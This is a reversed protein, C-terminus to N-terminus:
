RKLKSTFLQAFADDPDGAGGSLGQTPDTARSRTATGFMKKLSEAHAVYEDLDKGQLLKSFEEASEGPIGARLAARLKNAEAVATDRESLATSKEDSVLKLDNQFQTELEARVENATNQAKVRYKAAEANAESIQKRVWDPVTQPDNQNQEQAPPTEVTESM